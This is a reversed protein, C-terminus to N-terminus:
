RSEGPLDPRGDGNEDVATRILIGGEYTQWRDIQGNGTTDLEVRAIQGAEYYEWRDVTDNRATSVEIKTLQDDANRYSWADVIGDGALSFGVKVLRQQGDLYDWRDIRGDQDIDQDVRTVEGDALQVRTDETGDGDVDFALGSARNERDFIMRQLGPASSSAGLLTAGDYVLTSGGDEAPIRRFGASFPGDGYPGVIRYATAGAAVACVLGVTLLVLEVTPQPTRGRTSRRHASDARTEPSRSRSGAGPNVLVRELYMVSREVTSARLLGERDNRTM